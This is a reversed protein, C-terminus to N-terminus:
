KGNKNDEPILYKTKLFDDIDVVCWDLVFKETSPPIFSEFKWRHYAKIPTRVIYKSFYESDDKDWLSYREQLEFKVDIQFRTKKKFAEEGFIKGFKFGDIVGPNYEEDFEEMDRKSLIIKQGCISLVHEDGPDADGFIFRAGSIHLRKPNEISLEIKRNEFNLQEFSIKYQQLLSPGLYYQLENEVDHKSICDAVTTVAEMVGNSFDKWDLRPAGVYKLLRRFMFVGLIRHRLPEKKFADKTHQIWPLDRSEKVAAIAYRSKFCM